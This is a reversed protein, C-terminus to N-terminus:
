KLLEAFKEKLKKLKPNINARCYAQDPNKAYYDRHYEEAEFFNTLPEVATVIKGDFLNEEELKAIFKEAMQKQMEDTYFIVSRYQEGVDHGQRNLTTPDHTAFFVTLLDEFKIVDEDYEVKVVEAHGTEGTCVQEYSPHEVSGGAYGPLVSEVGRLQKFVAESCWFCGSGFVAIKNNM